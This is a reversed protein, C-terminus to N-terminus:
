SCRRNTTWQLCDGLTGQGRQKTEQNKVLANREYNRKRAEFNKNWFNQEISRKTMTKLRHYDAGAKKQHIELDCLKLVTKFKVSERTRPRCLGELIDDPPIKTMSYRIGSYRWKSSCYYIPRCFERCFWQSWRGPLVRLDSLRDTKRPPLPRRKQAKM